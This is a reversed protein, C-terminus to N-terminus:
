KSLAFWIKARELHTRGQLHSPLELTPPAGSSALRFEYVLATCGYEQTYELEKVEPPLREFGAELWHLAQNESVKADTQSFPHSTIIFVIIRYYGPSATFLAQFYKSLSFGRLREVALNWRSPLTKSTGDSNIQELRTVLAFGDPVAYYSRDYYGNADLGSVLIHDVDGLHLVPQGPKRLFESPIVTEASARPPPWPFDPLRQPSGSDHRAPPQPAPQRRAPPPPPPPPPTAPPPTVTPPSEGNVAESPPPSEGNVAKSAQHKGTLWLFALLIVELALLAGVGAFFWRARSPIKHTETQRIEGRPEPKEDTHQEEM